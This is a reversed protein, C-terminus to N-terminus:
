TARLTASASSRSRSLVSNGITNFVLYVLSFEGPVATTAMDGIAVPLAADDAKSRLQTVMPESLEIGIVSLGRAALPIGVRGTGIAFELAPGSGALDALFDVAPDLM